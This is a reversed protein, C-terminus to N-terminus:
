RIREVFTYEKSLTLVNYVRLPETKTAPRRSLSKEKDLVPQCETSPLSVTVSIYNTSIKKKGLIEKSVRCILQNRNWRIEHARSDSPRMAAFSFRHAIALPCMACTCVYGRRDQTRVAIKGNFVFM